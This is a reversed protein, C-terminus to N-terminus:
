RTKKRVPFVGWPRVYKMKLLFGVYIITVHILYKDIDNDAVFQNLDLLSIYISPLFLM